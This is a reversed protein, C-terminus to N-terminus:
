VFLLPRLRDEAFVFFAAGLCLHPGFAIAEGRNRWGIVSLSLGTIVGSSAAILVVAPLAGLGLWAGIAALLKFDGAGMGDQGRVLRYGANLLWLSSYGAAAGIVAHDLSAFIEACNVLLGAWLLGLTLVDPLLRTEMDIWALVWLTWGLFCIAITELTLGHQSLSLLAIAIPGLAFVCFALGQLHRTETSQARESIAAEGVPVEKHNPTDEHTTAGESTLAGNEGPETQAWAQFLAQPLERTIRAMPFAAALGILAAVGLAWVEPLGETFVNWDMGHMVSESGCRPGTCARFRLSWGIQARWLGYDPHAQM